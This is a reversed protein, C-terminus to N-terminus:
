MTRPLDARVTLVPVPCTRVVAEAVSGLLARSTSARAHTGMVVLDAGVESAATVISSRPDGCEVLFGVQLGKRPVYHRELTRRAIDAENRGAEGRVSHMMCVSAGSASALELAVSIAKDSSEEFDVAVLIRRPYSTSM